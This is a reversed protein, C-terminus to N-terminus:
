FTPTQSDRRTASDPFPLTLAGDHSGIAETVKKKESTMWDQLYIAQM